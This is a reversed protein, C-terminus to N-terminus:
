IDAVGSGIVHDIKLIRDVEVAGVRVIVTVAPVPVPASPFIEPAIEPVPLEFRTILV